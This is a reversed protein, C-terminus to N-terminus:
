FSAPTKMQLKEWAATGVQRFDVVMTGTGLFGVLEYRLSSGQTARLALKLPEYQSVDLVADRCIHVTMLRCVSCVSRCLVGDGDCEM